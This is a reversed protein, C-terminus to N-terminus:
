SKVTIWVGEGREKAEVIKQKLRNLWLTSNLLQGVLKNEGVLICGATDRPTNGQHIRIGSFQPVNLLLPLWKKFKPSYTIVVPYRGEPIAFPKQTIGGRSKTKMERVPPELTDCFYDAEGGAGRRLLPTNPFPYDKLDGRSPAVPTKLAAVSHPQPVVFPLSDGNAVSTPSLSLSLKGITYTEKKAIRKLILEM